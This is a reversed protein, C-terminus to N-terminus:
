YYCVLQFSFTSVLEQSISYVEVRGNQLSSLGISTEGYIIVFHESLTWGLYRINKWQRVEMTCLKDGYATHFEIKSIDSDLLIRLSPNRVFALAGGCPAIFSIYDAFDQIEFEKRDPLHEERYRANGLSFSEKTVNTM